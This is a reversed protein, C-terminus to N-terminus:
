WDPQLAFRWRPDIMCARLQQPLLSVNPADEFETAHFKLL